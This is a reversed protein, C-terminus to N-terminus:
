ARRQTLAKKYTQLLVFFGDCAPKCIFLKKDGLEGSIYPQYYEVKNSKCLGWKAFDNKTKGQKPKLFKKNLKKFKTM